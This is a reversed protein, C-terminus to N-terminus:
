SMTDQQTVPIPYVRPMRARAADVDFTWDVPHPNANHATIWAMLRAELEDRNAFRQKVLVAKSLVSIGLEAINLWSGHVPTHVLRITRRIASAEAVPLAAYLAAITHTNLNDLVVTITDATPYAAVLERMAVAFEIQRRRATVAVGMVGTHPEIWVHLPTMGDRRYDTDHRIGRRDRIPPRVHAALEKACEDFCIVPHAPDYPRHYVDLVAEM